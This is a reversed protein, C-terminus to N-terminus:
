MRSMCGTNTDFCCNIVAMCSDSGPRSAGSCVPRESPRSPATCHLRAVIRGCTSRATLSDVREVTSLAAAAPPQPLPRGLLTVAVPARGEASGATRMGIPTEGVPLPAAPKPLPVSEARPWFLSSLSAAPTSMDPLPSAM